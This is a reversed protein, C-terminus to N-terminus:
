VIASTQEHGWIVNGQPLPNCFKSHTVWRTEDDEEEEVRVIKEILDGDKNYKETTETITRKIM